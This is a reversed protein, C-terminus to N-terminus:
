CSASLGASRAAHGAAGHRLDRGSLPTSAVRQSTAARLSPMPRHRRLRLTQHARVCFARARQSM